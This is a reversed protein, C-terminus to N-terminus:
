VGALARGAIAPIAPLFAVIAAASGGALPRAAARFRNESRSGRMLRQLLLPDDPRKNGIYASHVVEREASPGPIRELENRRPM